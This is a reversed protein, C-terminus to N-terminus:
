IGIYEGVGQIKKHDTFVAYFGLCLSAFLYLLLLIKIVQSIADHRDRLKTVVYWVVVAGMLSALTVWFM